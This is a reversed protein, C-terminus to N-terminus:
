EELETVLQFKLQNIPGNQDHFLINQREIIKLFSESTVTLNATLVIHGKYASIIKYSEIVSLNKLYNKISNVDDFGDLNDIVMQVSHASLDNADIKYTNAYKEALDSFVSYLIEGEEVGEQQFHKISMDEDDIFVGTRYKVEDDTRKLFLLLSINKDYKLRSQEHAQFSLSQISEPSVILMDGEDINPNTFVLAMSEAWHKMWYNFVEDDYAYQVAPEDILPTIVIEDDELPNQVEPAFIEEKAVWLMIEQRNHPLLSFGSQKILSSIFNEHMVVHFWYYDLTNDKLYKSDIKEFSTRKVGSKINVENFYPDQLINLISEGTNNAIIQAFAQKFKLPDNANTDNVLISTKSVDVLTACAISAMFLLIVAVKIRLFLVLRESYM